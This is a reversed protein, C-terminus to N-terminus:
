ARQEKERLADGRCRRLVQTLLQYRSLFRLVRVLHMKEIITGIIRHSFVDKFTEHNLARIEHVNALEVITTDEIVLSRFTTPPNISSPLTDLM